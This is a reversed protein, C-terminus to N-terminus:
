RRPDPNFSVNKSHSLYIQYLKDWNSRNVSILLTEKNDKQNISIPLLNIEQISKIFTPNFKGISQLEVLRTKPPLNNKREQSIELLLNDLTNSAIAHYIRHEPRKTLIEGYKALQLFSYLNLLIKEDQDVKIIDLLPDFGLCIIYDFKDIYRDLITHTAITVSNNPIQTTSVQSDRDLRIIKKNPLNKTLEKEIKNAGISYGVYEHSGCNICAPFGNIKIKCSFCTLENTAMQRLPKQCTKHTLITSCQKCILLGWDGKKPIAILTKNENTIKSEILGSTITQGTTLQIKNKKFKPQLHYLEMELINISSAGIIIKDGQSLRLPIIEEIQYKPRRDEKHGPHSPDDIILITPVSPLLGIGTRTTLLVVKETQSKEWITWRQKPTNESSVILPKNKTILQAFSNLATADPFIFILSSPLSDVLKTYQDFREKTTGQIFKLQGNKKNHSTKHTLKVQALKVKPPLFYFLVDEITSLSIEAFKQYYVLHNPTIVPGTSRIKSINQIKFDGPKRSTFSAVVGRTLRGRIPVDVLCGVEIDALLDAPIQYTLKTPSSLKRDVYVNAYQM